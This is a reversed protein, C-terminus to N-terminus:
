LLDDSLYQDFSKGETFRVIKLVAQQADWLLKVSDAHM